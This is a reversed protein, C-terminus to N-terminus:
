EEEAIRAVDVVREGREVDILKVGQTSRGVVSIDNANIRIIRGTNTILMLEDDEGVQKLAVVKGNRDTTESSITLKISLRNM